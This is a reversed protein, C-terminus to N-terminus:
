EGNVLATFRELIRGADFSRVLRVPRGGRGFGDFELWLNSHVRVTTEETSVAAPEVIWAAALLDFVSFGGPGHLWRSRRLWRAAHRRLHEGLPGTLRALYSAGIRLRRAVDLPVITLPLESAFVARAAERDKTLNFEHPWLPPFRGRSSANGGVLVIESVAPRLGQRDLARLAAAVNTLPGLAAVRVPAGSWLDLRRDIREAVDGATAGRLYPGAYGRGDHGCLAGLTRNNRDAAAEGINGAVSALGAVPLGSRLLAATAFGDDVDGSSSGLANDTDILLPAPM